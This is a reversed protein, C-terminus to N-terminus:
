RGFVWGALTLVVVPILVVFLLNILIGVRAMRPLPVLGSAFVIANPPTGVPLMFACSAAMVAPLVLLLPDEGMGVAVSAVVPLFTATTAINSTLETLFLIAVTVLVIVLMIPLGQWAVTLTGLWAALGTKDVMEAM